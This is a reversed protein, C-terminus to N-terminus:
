VRHTCLELHVFQGLGSRAEKQFDELPTLLDALERDATARKEPLATVAMRFFSNTPRSERLQHVFECVVVRLSCARHSNQHDAAVVRPAHFGRELACEVSCSM